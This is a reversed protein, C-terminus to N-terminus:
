FPFRFGFQAAPGLLEKMAANYQEASEFTRQQGNIILTGRFNQMQLPFPPEIPPNPADLNPQDVEVAVEAAQDPVQLKNRLRNQTHIAENFNNFAFEVGNLTIAGSPETLNPKADVFLKWSDAIQQPSEQVGRFVHDRVTAFVVEDDFKMSRGDLSIVGSIEGAQNRALSAIALTEGALDTQRSAATAATASPLPPTYITLQYVDDEHLHWRQQTIQERSEVTVNGRRVEVDTTGNSDVAIDFVTGLDTVVISPTAVQFGQASSPVTASLEGNIMRLSNESTFELRSPAFLDIVVGSAMTVQLEGEDLVIAQEGFPTGIKFPSETPTLRGDDQLTKFRTVTALIPITPEPVDEPRNAQPAPYNPKEDKPKGSDLNPQAVSLVNARYWMGAGSICVLVVAAAALWEWAKRRSGRRSQKNTAGPLSSRLKLQSLQFEPDIHPTEALRTPLPPPTQRIAPTTAPPSIPINHSNAPHTEADITQCRMLVGTVFTDATLEYKSELRLTHDIWRDDLVIQRFALNDQLSVQLQKRDSELLTEGAVHRNWLDILAFSQDGDQPPKLNDKNM